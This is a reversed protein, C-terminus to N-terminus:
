GFPDIASGHETAPESPPEATQPTGLSDILPGQEAGPGGAKSRTEGLFIGQLQAAVSRWFVVAPELIGAPRLPEASAGVAGFTMWVALVLAARAGRGIRKM